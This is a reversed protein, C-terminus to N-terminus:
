LLKQKLFKKFYFEWIIILSLFIALFMITPILLKNSKLILYNSIMKRKNIKLKKRLNIFNNMLRNPKKHENDRTWEPM